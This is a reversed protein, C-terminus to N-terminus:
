GQRPFRKRTWTRVATLLEAHEDGGAALAQEAAEALARAEARDEGASWMARALVFRTQALVAPEGDYTALLAVARRLPPVALSARGLRLEAEGLGALVYANEFHDPSSVRERIALAARYRAAAEANRGLDLLVDAVHENTGAVEDNDPGLLEVQIALARQYSALARDLQGRAREVDALGSVAAALNRRDAGQRGFIAMARRLAAEAEDDRGLATLAYGRNILAEGVRPHDAGLAPEVIALAREVTALADAFRGQNFQISTLGNLAIAVDPHRAGLNRELLAIARATLDLGGPNDGDAMVARGLNFMARAAAHTEGGDIATRLDLAEQYRARAGGYDGKSYLTSGVNGALRAELDRDGGARELATRAHFAWELGADHRRQPEGLVFVLEVAVRAALLDDRGAQAAAFAERLTAEAQTSFGAAQHAEGLVSLAAARTPAHDIARARAVAATAVSRAEAARGADLLARGRALAADIAAVETVDRGAPIAVPALLATLNSCTDIAPLHDIWTPARALAAADATALLDVLAGAHALARDLCRTRLTLVQDSQVGRVRTAMCSDTRTASWQDAFADLGREVAPWVGDDVALGAAAVHARLQTKRAPGWVAAVVEPSDRCLEAPPGPSRTALLAVAPVAAAVGVVGMALARRRRARRGPDLAALLADMSRFRRHPDVHLGRALAATVHAPVAGRPRISSRAPGRAVEDVLNVAYPRQGHLAEHLAVCFGFQDSAADAAGTEFQEPAMYAPTGVLDTGGDRGAALGFDAIRVRGDKGVLINDPKVDRHVLGAAHAAALGRGAQRYADLVQDVSRRRERAWTRLDTGDVLEMAIFLEGDHTGADFAAVVNPHSLRALARAERQIRERQAHASHLVKVAVQRELEPDFAALVVGMAGSAIPGRVVYRGIRTGPPVTLPPRDDRGGSAADPAPGTRRVLESILRRCLECTATHAEVEARRAPTVIAELLETITNDGLCDVAAASAVM